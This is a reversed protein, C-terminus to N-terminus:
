LQKRRARQYESSTKYYVPFIFLHFLVFTIRFGYWAELYVPKVMAKDFCVGWIINLVGLGSAGYGM